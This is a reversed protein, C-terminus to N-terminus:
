RPCCGGARRITALRKRDRSQGATDARLVEILKRRLVTRPSALSYFTWYGGKRSTVLGAIKLSNLHRSATPQPVNLVKVLDAVCLEGATLLHMIRLRTPDSLARFTRSAEESM